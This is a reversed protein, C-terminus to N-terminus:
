LTKNYLVRTIWKGSEPLCKMRPWGWEAHKSYPFGNLCMLNIIDTVWNWNIWCACERRPAPGTARPQHILSIEEMCGLNPIQNIKPDLQKINKPARRWSSKEPFVPLHSETDRGACWHGPPVGVRSERLAHNQNKVRNNDRHDAFRLISGWRSVEKRSCMYGSVWALIPEKSRLLGSCKSVGLEATNM